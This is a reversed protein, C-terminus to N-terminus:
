IIMKSYELDVEFIYGKNTDRKELLQLVKSKDYDNWKFGHTPLKQSMAWGYLNNADLYQIYSSPKNPNYDKMYKNNAEAYRKSIHTIGGRIAREFMMLMDYDKLLELNQNTEKLCADWALGPATYYHCPDLKYHKLCTKRFNEFVDALLLVDSKLYLDHYDKLTKCNFSKWVKIAHLCDEDSNIKLHKIFKESINDDEFKKTYVIPKYNDKIGDLGKLYLCYGSPEHQQYEQTFSSNPNPQCSNIPKTFCEFDAYVVFPIPLKKYHKQFNLITKKTPMKVAVTENQSCYTMHKEFLDLKTFHSLCKECIHIKSNTDSAIQSRVLRYFNKILCYHQKEDKSFLFLAITKQLDKQNLRLPYIKNYDNVSFVHIGPLDPNQNEVKPIDKLKVPFDIGKFNLDNEYKRIGTLREEHKEIPHLYRLVSWLFCKNDKNEMNIIAKKRMIFDPLPIYTSGKIPKYDNIHIELSFVEKFYWGSGNMQFISIKELIEKIMQSLIVKVDTSELNIYTETNFYTKSETTINKRRSDVSEYKEMICVLIM